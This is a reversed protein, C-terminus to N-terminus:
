DISSENTHSQNILLVLLPPHYRPNPNNIQYSIHSVTKLKYIQAIFFILSSFSSSPTGDVAILSIERRFPILCGFTTLYTNEENEAVSTNRM